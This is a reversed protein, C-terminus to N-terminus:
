PRRGPKWGPAPPTARDLALADFGRGALNAVPRWRPPPYAARLRPLLARSARDAAILALVLRRARPARPPTAVVRVRLWPPAELLFPGVVGVGDNGRPILVLGRRGALRAAAAAAARAPQMTRPQTLLGALALAQVLAVAAGLTVGARRPLTALAGALLLGLFPTGFCLYRLEIPTSDFVLGLAILGAPPALAAASLLACAGIRRRRAAILGALGVLALALAAALALRAPGAPLYLPLGGFIAGAADRGLMALAPLLHFKPFQGARSDRQALFFWLGPPLFPLMGGLAAAARRGRGEAATVALLAAAPFAALYNAFCAAGLCLGAAVGRRPAALLVCGALVLAEALAFDRAIAGTYAFGYCGLTFGIAPLAPIAAARALRGVLALAILAALVSLLRAAFLGPGFARRWAALVWFYLPPHVDTARLERAIRAAGATGAVIRRIRGAHFPHAPWVPRPTGATLFLSYAEDYEAGRLRAAGLLGLAALALLAAQRWARRAPLPPIPSPAFM